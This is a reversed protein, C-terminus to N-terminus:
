AEDHGVSNESSATTDLLGKFVNILICTVDLKLGPSGSEVPCSMAFM